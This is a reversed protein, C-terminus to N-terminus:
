HIEAVLIQVVKHSVLLELEVEVTRLYNLTGSKKTMIPFALFPVEFAQSDRVPGEVPM